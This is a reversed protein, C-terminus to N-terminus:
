KGGLGLEARRDRWLRLAPAFQTQVHERVVFGLPEYFPLTREGAVVTMRGDGIRRACAAADEVLARGVGNRMAEPEVFLDELECAGDPRSCITAFGLRRGQADLAVRVRQEVIAEAGVGFVEPHQEFFPRDEVWISSSRRHLETLADRESPEAGRIEAVL